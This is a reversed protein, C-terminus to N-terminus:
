PRAEHIAPFALPSSPTIGPHDADYRMQAGIMDTPPRHTRRGPLPAGGGAKPGGSTNGALPLAPGPRPGARPGAVPGAVPRAAPRPGCARIAPAPTPRTM